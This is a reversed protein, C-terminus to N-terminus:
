SIGNYDESEYYLSRQKQGLRFFYVTLNLKLM